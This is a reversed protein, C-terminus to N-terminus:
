SDFGMISLRHSSRKWNLVNLINRTIVRLRDPVRAPPILQNLGPHTLIRGSPGGADLIAQNHLANQPTEQLLIAFALVDQNNFNSRCPTMLVLSSVENQWWEMVGLTNHITNTSYTGDMYLQSIVQRHPSRCASIDKAAQVRDAIVRAAIINRWTIATRSVSFVPSLSPYHTAVQCWPSLSQAVEMDQLADTKRSRNLREVIEQLRDEVGDSKNFVIAKFTTTSPLNFKKKMKPTLLTSDSAGRIRHQAGLIHYVDMNEDEQWLHIFNLSVVDEWYPYLDRVIYAEDIARNHANHLGELLRIRGKRPDWDGRHITIDIQKPM